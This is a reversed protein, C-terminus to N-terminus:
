RVHQLWNIVTQVFLTILTVTSNQLLLKKNVIMHFVVVTSLNNLSM